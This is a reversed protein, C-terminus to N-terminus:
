ECWCHDMLKAVVAQAFDEPAERARWARSYEADVVFGFADPSAAVCERIIQDAIECFRDLSMM